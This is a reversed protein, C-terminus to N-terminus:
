FLPSVRDYLFSMVAWLMVFLAGAALPVSVMWKIGSKQAAPDKWLLRAVINTGAIQVVLAAVLYVGMGLVSSDFVYVSSLYKAFFAFYASVAVGHVVVSKIVPWSVSCPDNMRKRGFRFLAAFAVYIFGVAAFSLTYLRLALIFDRKAKRASGHQVVKERLAAISLISGATVGEGHQSLMDRYAKESYRKEGNVVEYTPALYSLPPATQGLQADVATDFVKDQYVYHYTSYKGRAKFIAGGKRILILAKDGFPTKWDSDFSLRNEGDHASVKTPLSAADVNRTILIPLMDNMDDRVNKAITWMNNEATLPGKTWAPVGVNGAALKTYDFDARVKSEFL